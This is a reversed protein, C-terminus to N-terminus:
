IELDKSIEQQQEPTLKTSAKYSPHRVELVVEGNKFNKKQNENLHFKVYHVASIRDEKSHGEEFEAPSEKGNVKMVVTNQGDLGQFQDLLTKIQHQDSIEIFMTASLTDKEPILENYVDLEFQIKKEDSIHEIRMMEQIQYRITERNEFTFTLRDGVEIRRLKKLTIIRKRTDEREGAYQDNLKIDQRSLKNM